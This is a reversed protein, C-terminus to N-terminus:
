SYRHTPDFARGNVLLEGEDMSLGAACVGVPSLAEADRAVSKLRAELRSGLETLRFLRSPTPHLRAVPRTNSGSDASTTACELDAPFAGGWGGAAVM